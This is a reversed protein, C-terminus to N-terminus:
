DYPWAEHNSHRDFQQFQSDAMPSFGSETNDTDNGFRSPGSSVFVGFKEFGRYFWMQYISIVWMLTSAISYGVGGILTVWAFAPFYKTLWWSLIDILLFAFPAGVLVCKVRDSIGVSFSFIVGIFMFIFSIGFLHIHSVRTLSKFTAGHDSEALRQVVELQTFDPLSSDANHCGVCNQQFMPKIKQEWQDSPAEERAWKIIEFRIEPSAMAKMQGNLMTELKTGTRNGYYSYVIDDLSLGLEGDAMGHTLMIQMGATLLGAGICLLYGTFLVKLPFNLEPLRPLNHDSKEMNESGDVSGLICNLIAALNSENPDLLGVLDQDALAFGFLM